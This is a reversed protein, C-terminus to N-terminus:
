LAPTASGTRHPRGATVSAFTAAVRRVVGAIGTGIFSGQAAHARAQQWRLDSMSFVLGNM